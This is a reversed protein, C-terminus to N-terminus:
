VHGKIFAFREFARQLIQVLALDGLGDGFILLNEAVVRLILGRQHRHAIQEGALAIHGVREFIELPKRLDIKRIAEVALGDRNVLFDGLQRRGFDARELLEGIEVHLLAHQALRARKKQLDRFRVQLGVARGLGHLHQM